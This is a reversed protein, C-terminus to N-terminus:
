LVNMVFIIFNTGITLIRQGNLFQFLNMKSILM